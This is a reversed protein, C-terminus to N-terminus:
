REMVFSSRIMFRWRCTVRWLDLRSSRVRRSFVVVEGGGGDADDDDDGEVQTVVGRDDDVGVVAGKGYDNRGKWWGWAWGSEEEIEEGEGEEQEQEDVDNTNGGNTLLRRRAAAPLAKPASGDVGAELLYPSADGAEEDELDEGLLIPLLRNFLTRVSM